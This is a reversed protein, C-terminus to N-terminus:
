RVPAKGAGERTLRQLSLQTGQADLAHADPLTAVAENLKQSLVIGHPASTIASSSSRTGPAPETVGRIHIAPSTLCFKVRSAAPTAKLRVVYLPTIIPGPCEGSCDVSGMPTGIMLLRMM